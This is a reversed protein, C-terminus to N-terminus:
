KKLDELSDDSKALKDFKEADEPDKESLSKIIKATEEIKEKLDKDSMYVGFM